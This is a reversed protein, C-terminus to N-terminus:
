EYEKERRSIRFFEREMVCGLDLSDGYLIIIFQKELNVIM